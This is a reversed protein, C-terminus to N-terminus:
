SYLFGSLAFFYLSKYDKENEWKGMVEFNKDGFSNSVKPVVITDCLFILYHVDCLFM